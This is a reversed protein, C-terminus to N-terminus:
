RSRLPGYVVADGAELLEDATHQIRDRLLGPLLGAAASMQRAQWYASAAMPNDVTLLVDRDVIPATPAVGYRRQRFRMLAENVMVYGQVARPDAIETRGTKFDHDQLEHIQAAEPRDHFLMEAITYSGYDLWLPFWGKEQAERLAIKTAAEREGSLSNFNAALLAVVAIAAMVLRGLRAPAAALAAGILVATPVTVLACYRALHSKVRYDESFPNGGFQLWLLMAISWVLVFALERRRAVIAWVLSAFFAYYHLGFQYPTVFWAKPFVWLSTASYGAEATSGKVMKQSEVDVLLHHLVRGTDFYYYANEVLFVFGCAAAVVLLARWASPRHLWLTLLVLLLLGAEIRVLYAYGWLLGAGVAWGYPRADDRARLMCYVAAACSAGLPVDPFFRTALYIELPLLAALAAAFLGARPGHVHAGILYAMWIGVMSWFLPIAAMQIEGVGFLAFIAALPITLGIRIGYHDFPTQFGNELIKLAEAAVSADDSGTIGGFYFLRLALGLVLMASLGLVGTRSETRREATRNLQVSVM